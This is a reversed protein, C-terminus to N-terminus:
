NSFGKKFEVPNHLRIGTLNRLLINSLQIYNTASGKKWVWGTEAVWNRRVSSSTACYTATSLHCCTSYISYRMKTTAAVPRNKPVEPWNTPVTPIRRACRAWPPWTRSGRWTARTAAATAGSWRVPCPRNRDGDTWVAMMIRDLGFGFGLFVLGLISLLNYITALSDLVNRKKGREFKQDMKILKVM